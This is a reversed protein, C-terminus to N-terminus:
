NGTAISEVGLGYFTYECDAATELAFGLYGGNECELARAFDRAALAMECTIAGTLSLALLATYTSLLDAIPASPTARFGGDPTRLSAIFAAHPELGATEGWMLSLFVGAATGNTGATKSFRNEFFGGSPRALGRLFTRAREDDPVPEALRAYLAHALFTHYLSGHVEGGAKAWGGDPRRLETLRALTVARAPAEDRTGAAGGCLAVADWWSAATVADCFAGGPQRTLEAPPQSARARLFQAAASARESTLEGLAWLGRLAFATYYVDARGRRNAFGGDAQQQAALWRAHKQRYGADTGRLGDRLANRLLELFDM